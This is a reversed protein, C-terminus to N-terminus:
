KKNNCTDANRAAVSRGLEGAALTSRRSSAVLACATVPRPCLRTTDNNICTAQRTKLYLGRRHREEYDPFILGLSVVSQTASTRSRCLRSAPPPFVGLAAPRACQKKRFVIREVLGRFLFAFGGAGPEAAIHEAGRVGAPRASLRYTGTGPM